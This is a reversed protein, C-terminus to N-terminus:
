KKHIIENLMDLTTNEMDKVKSKNDNCQYLFSWKKNQVLENQNYKLVVSCECNTKSEKCGDLFKIMDKMIKTHTNEHMMNSSETQM